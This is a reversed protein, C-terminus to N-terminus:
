SRRHMVHDDWSYCQSPCYKQAPSPPRDAVVVVAPSEFAGTRWVKGNVPSNPALAEGALIHGHAVNEVFTFDVKNKGNRCCFLSRTDKMRYWWVNKAKEISVGRKNLLHSFRLVWGVWHHIKDQWGQGNKRHHAGHSSGKTRLHQSSPHCSHVFWRRQKGVGVAVLPFHMENQKGRWKSNEFNHFSMECTSNEGKGATNQNRHLLGITEQCLAARRFRQTYRKGPVGCKCQKNAGTETDLVLHALFQVLCTLIKFSKRVKKKRNISEGQRVSRQLMRYCEENRRQESEPLATQKAVSPLPFCLPFGDGCEEFSTVLGTLCFQQINLCFFVKRSEVCCWRCRCRWECCHPAWLALHRCFKGCFTSQCYLISADFRKKACIELTSHFVITMSPQAYTSCTSEMAKRWCNRWLTAASFGVAESWRVSRGRCVAASIDAYAFNAAEKKHVSFVDALANESSFFFFVCFVANWRYMHDEQWGIQLECKEDDVSLFACASIECRCRKFGDDWILRPLEWLIEFCRKQCTRNWDSLAFSWRATKRKIKMACVLDITKCVVM